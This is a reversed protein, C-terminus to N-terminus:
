LRATMSRWPADVFGLRKLRRVFREAQPPVWIHTDYVQYPRVDEMALSILNKVADLRGRPDSWTRDLLLYSETTLRGLVAAVPKQHEDFLATKVVFDPRLLDLKYDFGMSQHLGMLSAYDGERVPRYNKM